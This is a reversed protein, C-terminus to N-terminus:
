VADPLPLCLPMPVSFGDFSLGSGGLGLAQLVHTVRQPNYFKYIADPCLSFHECVASLSAARQTQWPAACLSLEGYRRELLKLAAPLLAGSRLTLVQIRCVREDERLSAYGVLEGGRLISVPNCNWSRLIDIFREPARVSYCPQAEHMAVATPVHEQAMPVLSLARDDVDRLAHRANDHTLTALMKVGASVYGYYGYRQRLGGLVAFDSRLAAAKQDAADLMVQMYGRGRVKPHVSVSGIGLYRLTESGARMEGPYALLTAVLKGDERIAFHHASSDGADGYLKPLLTAFDHPRHSKSFVYDCFEILEERESQDTWGMDIM